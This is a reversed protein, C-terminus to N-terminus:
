DNDTEDLVKEYQHYNHEANHIDALCTTLYDLSKENIVLALGGANAIKRRPWPAGKIPTPPYTSETGGEGYPSLCYGGIKGAQTPRTTGGFCPRM